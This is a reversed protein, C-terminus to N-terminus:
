APNPLYYGRKPPLLGPLLLSLLWKQKENQKTRARPSLFPPLFSAPFFSLSFLLLIGSTFLPVCTNTTHQPSSASTWAVGTARLWRCVCQPLCVSLCVPPFSSLFCCPWSSPPHSPSPFRFSCHCSMAVREGKAASGAESLYCCYCQLVLLLLTLWLLLWTSRSRSRIRGLGWRKKHTAKKNPANVIHQISLRRSVGRDRKKWTKWTKTGESGESEVPMWWENRWTERDSQRTNM